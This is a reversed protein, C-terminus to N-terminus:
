GLHKTRVEKDCATLILRADAALSLSWDGARFTSGVNVCVQFTEHEVVGKETRVDLTKISVKIASERTRRSSLMRAKIKYRAQVVATWVDADTDGWIKEIHM